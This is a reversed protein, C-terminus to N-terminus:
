VRTAPQLGFHKTQLCEALGSICTETTVTNITALLNELWLDCASSSWRMYM